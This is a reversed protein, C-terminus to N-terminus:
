VGRAVRRHPRALSDRAARHVIEFSEPQHERTRIWPAVADILVRIAACALYGGIAAFFVPVVLVEFATSGM